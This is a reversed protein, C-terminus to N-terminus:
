AAKSEYGDVESLWNDALESWDVESLAASLLDGWMTGGLDPQMSEVWEKLTDALNYRAQSSKEAIDEEDVDDFAAQVREVRENYLGEENDIWLAVNWTEYNTYGNYSM